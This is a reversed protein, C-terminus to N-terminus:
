HLDVANELLLEKVLNKTEVFDSKHVCALESVLIKIASTLMKRERASLGKHKERDSLDRVVYAVEIVDGTRLRDMNEKYRKNWNPNTCACPKSLVHKVEDAKELCIVNRVGLVVAQSRPVMIVENRFLLEVIYYENTTGVFERTEISAIVGAGYLPHVINEGVVFM